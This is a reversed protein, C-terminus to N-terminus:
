SACAGDVTNVAQFYWRPTDSDNFPGSIQVTAKNSIPKIEFTGSLNAIDVGNGQVGSATNLMEMTNYAKGHSTSTRVAGTRVPLGAAFRVEEWTYEWRNDGLSASGTIQAYISTQENITPLEKRVKVGSDVIGQVGSMPRTRGRLSPNSEPSGNPNGGTRDDATLTNRLDSLSASSRRLRLAGIGSAISEGSIRQLREYFSRPVEHQNITILTRYGFIDFAVSSVSGDIDGPNIDIIGRLEIVGSQAMDSSLRAIAMKKAIELLVDSNLSVPVETDGEILTMVRRLMPAAVKVVTPDELALLVDAPLMSDITITSGDISWEFGVVFYDTTYDGTNSEHAFTITLEDGVLERVDGRRGSPYGDVRVFEADPPLVFVGDGSIARVGDIRIAVGLDDDPVNELVDNGVKVSCKAEVVAAAGKFIAFDGQDLTHPINVFNSAKTLDDGTLRVARYLQGLYKADTPNVQGPMLGNRYTTLASVSQPEWTNDAADFVVWELPNLDEPPDDLALSRSTIITSRTAGSTVIIKSSRVAPMTGLTYPEAVAEIPAPITISQGARRLRRVAIKGNNLQVITWGIRSLLGDLEDIPRANGWDLPGPADVTTTGDVALDLAAPAAEHDLGMADLCIDVLEQNTKYDAHLTDVLNDEDLENLTGETILNGFGDRLGRLSTELLIKYERPTVTGSADGLDRGYSAPFKMKLRYGKLTIASGKGQGNNIIIWFDHLENWGSPWDSALVSLTVPDGSSGISRRIPGDAIADIKTAHQTDTVRDYNSLQITSQTLPM